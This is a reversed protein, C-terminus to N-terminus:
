ARPGPLSVASSVRGLRHSRRPPGWLALGPAGRAFEVPKFRPAATYGQACQGGRFAQAKSRYVPAICPRGRAADQLTLSGGPRACYRPRPLTLRLQPPRRLLGRGEPRKHGTPFSLLRHPAFAFAKPLISHVFCFLVVSLAWRNSRPDSLNHCIWM